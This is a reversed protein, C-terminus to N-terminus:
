VKYSFSINLDLFVKLLDMFDIERLTEFLSELMAEGDIEQGNRALPIDYRFMLKAIGESGSNMTLLRVTVPTDDPGDYRCNESLVLEKASLKLIRDYCCEGETKDYSPECVNEDIEFDTDIGRVATEYTSYFQEDYKM